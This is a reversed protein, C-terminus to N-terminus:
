LRTGTRAGISALVWRRYTAAGARPEWGEFRQDVKSQRRGQSPSVRWLYAGILLGVLLGLGLICLEYRRRTAVAVRGESFINASAGRLQDTLVRVEATLGKELSAATAECHSLFADVRGTTAYIRASLHDPTPPMAPIAAALTEVQRQLRELVDRYTAQIKKPTLIFIESATALSRLLHSIEEQVTKASDAQIVASHARDVAHLV